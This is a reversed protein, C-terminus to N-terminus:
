LGRSEADSRETWCSYSDGMECEGCERGTDSRETWCSYLSGQFISEGERSLTPGQPGVAIHTQGEDARVVNGPGQKM